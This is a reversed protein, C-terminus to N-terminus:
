IVANKEKKVQNIELTLPAIVECQERIWNVKSLYSFLRDTELEIEEESYSM